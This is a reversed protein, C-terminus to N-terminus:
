YIKKEVIRIIRKKQKKMKKEMIEYMMYAIKKRTIDNQFIKLDKKEIVDKEDM